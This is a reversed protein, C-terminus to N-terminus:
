LDKLKVDGFKEAIENMTAKIDDVCDSYIYINEKVTQEEYSEVGKMGDNLIFLLTNLDDIEGEIKQILEKM